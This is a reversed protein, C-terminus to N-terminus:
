EQVNSTQNKHTFYNIENVIDLLAQAKKKEDTIQQATDYATKILNQNDSAQIMMMTTNFREEPTQELHDILPSLQGLAQQKITLLDDNVAPQVGPTDLNSSLAELEPNVPQTNANNDPPVTTSVNQAPTDWGGTAPQQTAAAVTSQGDDSQKDNQYGFM